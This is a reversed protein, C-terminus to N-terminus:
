EDDTMRMRFSQRHELGGLQALAEAHFSALEDWRVGRRSANARDASEAAFLPPFISFGMDLGLAETEREWGTWRLDSYFDDTGGGVAWAVFDGHGIGLPQWELADPAFYCVHGLSGPLAGGNIAFIGGVVDRAVHLSSPPSTGESPPGVLNTTALDPLPHHGGGLLRLWGHDVLVGGSHFALAGLVSRTTVQLRYLCREADRREV